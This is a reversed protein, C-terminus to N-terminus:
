YMSHAREGVYWSHDQPSSKELVEVKQKLYANANQVSYLAKELTDVKKHLDIVVKDKGKSSSAPEPNGYGLGARSKVFTTQKTSMQDLKESFKNLSTFILDRDKVTLPRDGSEEVKRKGKCTLCSTPPPITPRDSLKQSLLINAEKLSANKAELDKMIADFSANEEILHNALEIM